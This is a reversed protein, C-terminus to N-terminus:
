VDDKGHIGKRANKKISKQMPLEFAGVFIEQFLRLFILFFVCGGVHIPRGGGGGGRWVSCFLWVWGGGPDGGGGGGWHGNFHVDLVWRVDAASALDGRAGM